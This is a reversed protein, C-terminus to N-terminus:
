CDTGLRDTMEVAFVVPFQIIWIRIGVEIDVVERFGADVVDRGVGDGSSGWPRWTGPHGM